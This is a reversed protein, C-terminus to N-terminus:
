SNTKETSRAIFQQAQPLMRKLTTFDMADNEALADNIEDRFAAAYNFAAQVRVESWELHKAVAATDGKYGRALM